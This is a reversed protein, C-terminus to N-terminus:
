EGSLRLTASVLFVTIFVFVGSYAVTIKGLTAVSLTNALSLDGFRIIATTTAIALSWLGGSIFLIPPRYASSEPFEFSAPDSTTDTHEERRESM